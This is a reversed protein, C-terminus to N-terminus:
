KGAEYACGLKDFCDNCLDRWFRGRTDYVFYPFAEQDANQCHDCIRPTNIHVSEVKMDGILLQAANTIIKIDDESLKPRM